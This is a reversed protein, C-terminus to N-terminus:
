QFIYNSQNCIMSFPLRVSKNGLLQIFNFGIGDIVGEDNIIMYDSENAKVFTALLNVSENRQM